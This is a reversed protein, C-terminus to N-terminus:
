YFALQIVVIHKEKTTDTWYFYPHQMVYMTLCQLPTLRQEIFVHIIVHLLHHSHHTLFFGTSM